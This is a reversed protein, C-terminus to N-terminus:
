FLFGLYFSTFSTICRFRASSKPLNSITLKNLQSSSVSRSPDVKPARLPWVFKRVVSTARSPHPCIFFGSYFSHTDREKQEQCM